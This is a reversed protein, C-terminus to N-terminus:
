VDGRQRIARGCEICNNKKEASKCEKKIREVSRKQIIINESLKNHSKESENKGIWDGTTKQMTYHIKYHCVDCLLICNDLCENFKEKHKSFCIRCTDHFLRKYPCDWDYHIHHIVLPNNKEKGKKTVYPKKGDAGCSACVNGFKEYVKKRFFDSKFQRRVKLRRNGVPNHELLSEIVALEDKSLGSIPKLQNKLESNGVPVPRNKFRLYCAYCYNRDAHRTRFDKECGECRKNYMVM